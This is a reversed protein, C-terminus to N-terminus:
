FIELKEAAAYSMYLVGGIGPAGKKLVRNEM